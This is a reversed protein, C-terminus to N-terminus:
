WEFPQLPASGRTLRTARIADNISTIYLIIFGRPNLRTTELVTSLNRVWLMALVLRSGVYGLGLRPGVGTGVGVYYWGLVM